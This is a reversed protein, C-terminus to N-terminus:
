ASAYEGERAGKAEGSLEFSHVVRETRLEHLSLGAVGLALLAVASAFILWMATAPAFVLSAVITWVSIVAVTAGMVRQALPPILMTAMGLALLAISLGFGIWAVVPLAFAQTAIILFGAILTLALNALYRIRM